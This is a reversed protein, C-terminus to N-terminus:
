IEYVIAEEAQRCEEAIDKLTKGQLRRATNLWLDDWLAQLVRRPGYKRRSGKGSFNTNVVPGELAVVAELLTITGAPRALKHGGQRGRVSTVLGANKLAPMLQDLFQKPITRRAAIQATQVPENGGQMALDVLALLGYEAKASLLM